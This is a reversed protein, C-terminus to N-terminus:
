KTNRAIFDSLPALVNNDAGDEANTIDNHAIGETIHVEFGGAEGGFTPFAPNPLSEDVIRPTTGDCSPAGCLGISEAFGLYNAPVPTLGNSGGFCIVPIDINAAQTQNVIDHRGREVSLQTSDLGMSQDCDGNTDCPAGIDGETCEGCDENSTCPDGDRPGGQCIETGGVDCTGSDCAGSVSTMGLGASPYYWDAANHGTALFETAFRGIRVVEKEQGWRSAPLTTPPPGNYPLVSPPMPSGEAIGLWTRLGDVVPGPAGVSTATAPSFAAALGDDDLYAALMGDVTSPPLIGLVFLEPVKKIATNNPDGGQGVQLIVQGKDPDTLRQLAAPESAATVQPSLGFVAAYAPTPPTCTEKGGHGVCDSDETCPSGDVCRSDDDRVAAFLGGDFKDEIRDLSDQSLTAGTSGGGGELLVLGRLKAYGPEPDGGGSFNFDTAAYRATFGTGASHGGLFVNGNKATGRALDVIENIDRSHVQGTFNAIFPIDDSTNYFFARRNPGAVLAPHLALGLDDGYYWDLAVLPDRLGTAILVGERDELQDTRRHFGWVEIILDHDALVRPILNEAMVKFNNAGGGFGAVLILIADPAQEPGRLRWRTYRANNLSFNPGGFQTILDPNAVVVGPSGPTEAPEAPSPIDFTEGSVRPPCIEDIADLTFATVHAEVDNADGSTVCEGKSEAKSFSKAFKSEAKSIDSSLKVDNRKKGNKGHAKLFDFVEKGAGRAKAERCKLGDVAAHLPSSAGLFVGAAITLIAKTLM